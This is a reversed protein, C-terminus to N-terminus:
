GMFNAYVPGTLLSKVSESFTINQGDPSEDHSPALVRVAANSEPGSQRILDFILCHFRFYVHSSGWHLFGWSGWKWFLREIDGTLTRTFELM